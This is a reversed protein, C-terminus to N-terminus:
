SNRYHWKRGGKGREEVDAAQTTCWSGLGRFKMCAKKGPVFVGMQRILIQPNLSINEKIKWDQLVVDKELRHNRELGEEEQCKGV